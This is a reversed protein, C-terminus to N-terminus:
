VLHQCCLLLILLQAIFHKTHSSLMWSINRQISPSLKKKPNTRCMHHSQADYAYANICIIWSIHDYCTIQDDLSRTARLCGCPYSEIPHQVVVHIYQICNHCQWRWGADISDLAVIFIHAIFQFMLFNWVGNMADFLLPPNTYYVTTQVASLLCLLWISFNGKSEIM